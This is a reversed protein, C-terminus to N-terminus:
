VLRPSSASAMCISGGYRRLSLIHCFLQSLVSQLIGHRLAGTSLAWRPRSCRADPAATLLRMPLRLPNPLVPGFHQSSPPSSQIAHAKKSPSREGQRQMLQPTLHVLNHLGHFAFRCNRTAGRDSFFLTLVSASQHAITMPGHARKSEGCALLSKLRALSRRCSFSLFPFSLCPLALFADPGALWWLLLAEL